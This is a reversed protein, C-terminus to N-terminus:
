TLIASFSRLTGTGSNGFSITFMILGCILPMCNKFFDWELNERTKLKKNKFRKIKKKCIIPSEIQYPVNDDTKRICKDVSIMSDESALSFFCSISDEENNLTSNTGKNLIIDTKHSNQYTNGPTTFYRKTLDDEFLVNHKNSFSSTV